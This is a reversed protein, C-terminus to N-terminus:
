LKEGKSAVPAPAKRSPDTYWKYFEFIAQLVTIALGLWFLAEERSMVSAVMMIGTSVHRIKLTNVEMM